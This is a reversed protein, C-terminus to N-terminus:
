ARAGNLAAPAASEIPPHDMWERFWMELMLLTWLQHAADLRGTLHDSVLREVASPAFLGRHRSTGDLLHDTLMQRLEGRLWAAIPVAFGRKSRQLTAAPLLGQLSRKLLSKLRWGGIKMSGPLRAAFEMLHYDLFPSRAELSNAMTMIDMKVLLDSPLYFSTDLALMSDVADLGDQERCLSEIRSRAADATQRSGLLQTRLEQRIVGAWREYREARPVRAAQLVRSLRDLDRHGVPSVGAAAAVLRQAPGQLVGFWRNWVEVAANALHRGYGAFGEDGGDGNLAVTVHERTLRSLYYTPIASSDAYPEGFHRVLVPLIEAAHPRVIFEHHDCGFAQAVRRAHPLENYAEEEFGISFSHVTGGTLRAMLATVASSDVGGSLLVGLPVDSVLRKRVAETLLEMLRVAADDNTLSLKPGYTLAWYRRLRIGQRDAVLLHAPPLKRIGRYITLPAPVAMYALYCDLAERDLERPIRTDRLLAQFESAFSIRAGDQHYLLPKKGFRDRALVLRQHQDDWLAIAFMGDLAEVFAEGREEYLHVIVETDSGTTFRHGQSVLNQRLERFNYIEGNCVVWVTGDENSIPQHGGRLDIISLRRSGLAATARGPGAPGEPLITLGEDDPGRHALLACQARLLREDLPQGGFDVTGVIGCM